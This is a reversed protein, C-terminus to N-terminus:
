ELAFLYLAQNISEVIEDRINKLDAYSDLEFGELKKSQSRLYNVMNQDNIPMYSITQQKKFTPKGLRGMYVEVFRDIKENLSEQLQDSAKHRPYSKTMWHYLKLNVQFEFFFKIMELSM